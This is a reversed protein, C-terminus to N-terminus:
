CQRVDRLVRMGSMCGHTGSVFVSSKSDLYSIVTDTACGRGAARTEASQRVSDGRDAAAQGDVALGALSRSDGGVEGHVSRRMDSKGRGSRGSRNYARNPQFTHGSTAAPNQNSPRAMLSPAVNLRMRTCGTGRFVVIPRQTQTATMQRILRVHVTRSVM